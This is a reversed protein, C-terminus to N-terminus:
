HDLEAFVRTPHVAELQLVVPVHEDLGLALQEVVRQGGIRVGYHGSVGDDPSDRLTWDM